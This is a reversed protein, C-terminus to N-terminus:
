VNNRVSCAMVTNLHYASSRPPLSSSDCPVIETEVLVRLNVHMTGLIVLYAITKDTLASM